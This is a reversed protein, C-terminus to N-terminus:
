YIGNLLDYVEKDHLLNYITDNLDETTSWYNPYFGKGEGKFSPIAKVRESFNTMCLNVEIGSNALYYTCKNGYLFCGATNQGIQIVQNTKGFLYRADSVFSEGSSAVKNDTLLILTGKYKAKKIAKIKKGYNRIIKKSHKKMKKKYLNIENILSILDPNNNGGYEEIIKELARITSSSYLWVTPFELYKNHIGALDILFKRGYSDDGGYNGRLDIIIYEKNKCLDAYNSFDELLKYERDNQCDCSAYNIYISKETTKSYFDPNRKVNSCKIVPIIYKQDNISINIDKIYNNSIYGIRYVNKGKAPYNFLYEQGCTVVFGKKINFVNSDVVVFKGNELKVYVDSFYVEFPVIFRYKLGNWNINAHYDYIYPSFEEYLEDLFVQIPVSEENKFKSIIKERLYSVDLGRKLVDEYGAYSTEILYIFSDLDEIMEAFSIIIKNEYIQEDRVVDIHRDEILQSDISSCSFFPILLMLIIIKRM